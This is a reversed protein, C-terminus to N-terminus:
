RVPDEGCELVQCAAVPTSGDTLIFTSGVEPLRSEMQPMLPYLKVIGGDQKPMDDSDTSVLVVSFLDSIGYSARYGTVAVTKGVPLRSSGQEVPLLKLRVVAYKGKPNM